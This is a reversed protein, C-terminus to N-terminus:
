PCLIGATALFDACNNGERYTHHITVEWDLRLLESFRHIITAHQHDSADPSSLLQVACQSDLDVRIRHHELNWALQLGEVVGRLEARTITCMGLNSAVAALCCGTHDRLLGCAAAHNTDTHVFGDTNLPVWKPPPPKWSIDVETRIPQSSMHTLRDKDM